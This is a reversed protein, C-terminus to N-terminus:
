LLTLLLKAPPRQERGSADFARARLVYTGSTMGHVIM